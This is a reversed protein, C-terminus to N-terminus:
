HAYRRVVELDPAHPTRGRALFHALRRTAILLSSLRIREDHDPPTGAVDRYGALLLPLWDPHEIAFQGLDYTPEAGRIEGFDIVGSYVGACHYVHGADFDGHALMALEPTAWEADGVIRTLSAAEGASIVSALRLSEVARAADALAWDGFRAYEGRLEAGSGGDRRVWGFGQVAIGNVMALDRGAAALVAALSAGPSDALVSRGRVETTVMVARELAPEREDLYVVEPVKAGRALLLRHVLAEPGFDAGVEPLVRLYLTPGDGYIRYVETSVGERVREVCPHGRGHWVRAALAAVAAGIDSDQEEVGM